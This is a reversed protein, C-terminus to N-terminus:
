DDSERIHKFHFIVERSVDSFGRIDEEDIDKLIIAM